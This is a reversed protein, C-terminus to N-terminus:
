SRGLAILSRLVDRDALHDLGLAALSALTRPGLHGDIAGCPQGALWCRAQVERWYARPIDAHDSAPSEVLCAAIAGEARGRAAVLPAWPGHWEHHWAESEDWPMAGNSRWEDPTVPHWGVERLKARLSSWAAAWTVGRVFALAQLVRRLRLDVARGSQHWSQGPPSAYPVAPEPSGAAVWAAHRAALQAQEAAPRYYDTAPLEVGLLEAVADLAVWADRALRHGDRWELPPLDSM